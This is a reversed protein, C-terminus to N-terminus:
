PVVSHVVYHGILYTNVHPNLGYTVGPVELVSLFLFGLHEGGRPILKDRLYSASDLNTEIRQFDM